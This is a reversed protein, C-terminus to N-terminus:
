ATQFFFQGTVIKTTATATWNGQANTPYVNVTSSSSPFEINTPNLLVAGNDYALGGPMELTFAANTQPLTFSVATSNSIGRLDFWIFVLKGLRKYYIKKTTFSTWGTISSTASYDTWAASYIDGGLIFNGTGIQVDQNDTAIEISNSSNMGILKRNAAGTTTGRIFKNNPIIVEATDLGIRDSINQEIAKVEDKLANHHAAVVNHYVTTGDSHSVNSTGDDGRTCGLFQTGNTSTYSIIEVDITIYGATPFGTTTNVTVTTVSSNIAGNLTCALNNVAISLNADSAVGGPFVAM